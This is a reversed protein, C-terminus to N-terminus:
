MPLLHIKLRELVEEQTLDKSVLNDFVQQVELLQYKAATEVVKQAHKLHGQSLEYIVLHNWLDIHYPLAQVAGEFLRHVEYHDDELIALQIAFEWLNFCAVGPNMVTKLFTRASHQDKARLYLEVVQKALAYNRPMDVVYSALLEARDQPDMVHAALMDLVRNAFEFDSWTQRSETPLPRRCPVGLLCRHILATLSKLASLSVRIPASVDSSPVVLTELHFTLYNWWAVQLDSTSSTMTVLIEFLERIDKTPAGKMKAFEIYDLYAYISPKEDHNQLSPFGVPSESGIGVTSFCDDDGLVFHDKVFGDLLEYSVFDKKIIKHKAAHFVLKADSPNHMLGDELARTADEKNGLTQHLNFLQLWGEAWLPNEEVASSCLLLADAGMDQSTQLALWSAFLPTCKEPGGLEDVAEQFACILASPSQLLVKKEHWKIEFHDKRCLRGLSGHETSFLFDPLSRFEVFCIYCLWLFDLDEPVLLMSACQIVDRATGDLSASDSGYSETGFYKFGIVSKVSSKLINFATGIRGSVANLHVWYLLVELVWGSCHGTESQQTQTIEQTLQYLQQQCLQGKTEVGEVLTVCKWWVSNHPCYDLARRCLYDLDSSDPHVSYWSLYHRWIEPSNRNNELAQSFVNLAQELCDEPTSQKNHLHRYALRLWLEESQPESQVLAELAPIGAHVAADFYRVDSELELLEPDQRDVKQQLMSRWDKKENATQLDPDSIDAPRCPTSTKSSLLTCPRKSLPIYCPSVNKLSRNVDTVVLKCLLKMSLGKHKKKLDAVYKEAKAICQQPSDEPKIGLLERSYLALDVLVEADSCSYDRQHQWSCRDDNCTGHLEYRCLHARCQLKHCFTQSDLSQNSLRLFNASLRYSRFHLLPSVYSKLDVHHIETTPPIYDSPRKLLNVKLKNLLPGDPVVFDSVPFFRSEETHETKGELCRVCHDTYVAQMAKAVQSLTGEAQSEENDEVTKAESRDCMGEEKLGISTASTSASTSSQPESTVPTPTGVRTRTADTTKSQMTRSLVGQAPAAVSGQKLEQLRQRLEQELKQLRIKESLIEACSRPASPETSRTKQVHLHSGSSSRRRSPLLAPASETVPLKYSDGYVAKGQVLCQRELEAINSKRKDVTIQLLQLQANSKRIEAAHGNVAKELTALQAKLRQIRVETGRVATKRTLVDKRLTKMQKDELQFAKREAHLTNQLAKLAAMRMKIKRAKTLQQGNSPLQKISRQERRAIEAKLRRYELQQAQSLKLVSLPTSHLGGAQNQPVQVKQRAEKLFKELGASFDSSQTPAVAGGEEQDSEEEESTTDDVGLNIVLPTAKRIDIMRVALKAKEKLKFQTDRASPAVASVVPAEKKETDKPQIDEVAETERKRKLSQLLQARLAEEDEAESTDEQELVELSPSSLIGDSDVDMEVTDYNDELPSAQGNPLPINELPLSGGDPLQAVKESEPSPASPSEVTDGGARTVDSSSSTYAARKRKLMQLYRRKIAKFAEWNEYCPHRKWKSYARDKSRMLQTLEKDFWPMKTGKRLQQKHQVEAIPSDAELLEAPLEDLVMLLPSASSSGGKEEAVLSVAQAKARQANKRSELAKRRLELLSEEEEYPESVDSLSLDNPVAKTNDLPTAHNRAEHQEASTNEKDDAEKTMTSSSNIHSTNRKRSKATSKRSNGQQSLKRAKKCKPTHHHKKTKTKKPEPKVDKKCEDYKELTELQTQITRYQALLDEYSPETKPSQQLFKPQSRNKGTASPSSESISRNATTSRSHSNCDRSPESSRRFWSYHELQSTRRERSIVPISNQSTRSRQMHPPVESRLPSTAIRNRSTRDSHRSQKCRSASFQLKRSYPHHQPTRTRDSGMGYKAVGANTRPCVESSRPRSGYTNPPANREDRVDSTEDSIEGEELECVSSIGVFAMM